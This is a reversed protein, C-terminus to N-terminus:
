LITDRWEFVWMPEELHTAFALNHSQDVSVINMACNTDVEAAEPEKTNLGGKM